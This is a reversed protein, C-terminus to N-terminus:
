RIRALLREAGRLEPQRRPRRLGGSAFRSVTLPFLRYLRWLVKAHPTVVILARNREVGRLMERVAAEVPM